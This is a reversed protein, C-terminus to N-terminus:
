EGEKAPKFELIENMFRRAIDHKPSKLTIGYDIEAWMLLFGIHDMIAQAKESYEDFSDM